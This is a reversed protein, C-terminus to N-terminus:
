KSSDQMATRVRDLEAAQRKSGFLPLRNYSQAAGLVGKAMPTAFTSMRYQLAYYYKGITELKAGHGHSRLWRGLFQMGFAYATAFVCFLIFEIM